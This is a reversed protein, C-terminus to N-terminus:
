FLNGIKNCELRRLILENDIKNEILKKYIDDNIDLINSYMKELENRNYLNKLNRVRIEINLKNISTKKKGLNILGILNGNHEIKTGKILVPFGRNIKKIWIDELRSIKKKGLISNLLKIQNKIIDIDERDPNTRLWEYLTYDYSERIIGKKGKSKITDYIKSYIVSNIREIKYDSDRIELFYRKNEKHLVLDLIVGSENNEILDKIREINKSIYSKLIDRM